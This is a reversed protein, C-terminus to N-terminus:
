SRYDIYNTQSMDMRGVQSIKSTNLFVNGSISIREQNCNFFPYVQHLLKSPFFLITGEDEPNTNYNFTKFNGMIDNYQFQFTSNLKVSSGVSNKFKSQEEHRTPIKMWIVFSYIATHKHIPNYDGEKQFNVWMSNIVLEHMNTTPVKVNDTGFVDHYQMIMQEIVKKYFRGGEDNIEFSSDLQGVLIDKVGKGRNKICNWLYDMEQNDLKGELWGHNVPSVSKIKEM